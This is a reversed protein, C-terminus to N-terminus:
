HSCLDRFAEHPVRRRKDGLDLGIVRIEVRARDIAGIFIGLLHMIALGAGRSLRVVGVRHFHCAQQGIHLQIRRGNDGGDQM